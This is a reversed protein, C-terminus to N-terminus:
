EPWPWNADLASYFQKVAEPLCICRNRQGLCELDSVNESPKGTKSCIMVLLKCLFPYLAVSMEIMSVCVCIQVKLPVTVHNINM